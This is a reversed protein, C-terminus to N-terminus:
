RVVKRAQTTVDRPGLALGIWGDDIAFQTVALDALKPNDAIVPPVIDWARRRAFIRVFIGRLAIQSGLPLRDGSLQIVGDRILNASLGELEPRYFAQVQFDRWVRREHQLRDFLLTVSVQGDECRVSVANEAAFTISVQEHEPSIQLWGENNLRGAVHKSLEPLTFTRGDLDLRELVNNIASEHLQVSALSNGPARPRPTHSGLQEEGALRIRMKVRLDTTEADIMVPDLRLRRMPELLKTRLRESVESMRANAEEDIRTKAQHHIKARIEANAAPENQAHQSRAVSNVLSGVLPLGDFDTRVGRLQLDNSVQVETESLRIGDLGLELPKRARYWGLSNTLFTAPGSSSTTQSVIRGHVDLALRARHADPILSLQMDASTARRGHARVGLVIDNVPAVEPQPQPMLRNLLQESVAFRLNANRYHMTLRSALAREKESDALALRRYDRAIRHAGAVTRQQEYQELNGLLRELNIPAAALRQLQAKLRSVPENTIFNRQSSDMPIQTLRELSARALERGVYDDDEGRQETWQRLADLLLYEQWAKGVASDGMFEELQDMCLVLESWEDDTRMARRYAPEALWGIHRWVDIRRRLAHATRQLRSQLEVDRVQNALAAAEAVTADLADLSRSTESPDVQVAHGLDELNATVREAWGATEPTESLLAVRQLLDAPPHWELTRASSPDDPQNSTPQALGIEDQSPFAPGVSTTAPTEDVLLDEAAPMTVSPRQAVLEPQLLPIEEIGSRPANSAEAYDDEPGDADANEGIEAANNLPLAEIQPLEPEILSGTLPMPEVVFYPAEAGEVLSMSQPIEDSVVAPFAQPEDAVAAPEASNGDVPATTVDATVKAEERVPKDAATTELHRTAQSLDRNRGLFEDEGGRQLESPSFSYILAGVCLICLITGSTLERWFVM